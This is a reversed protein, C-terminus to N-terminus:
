QARWADLYMTSIARKGTEYTIIHSHSWSSPGRNYGLDLESTTGATWVGDRIGAQHTHGTNVRRGIRGIGGPTGRSGNPGLHGHIGCEIGERGDSSCIIFSEDERLFVVEEPCGLEQLAYEVLHFREDKEYIGEYVRSQCKLFFRANVPDRRYDAERLWRGMANDHNSDVVIMKCGPRRAGKILAVVDQLEEEVSEYGEVHKEFAIHPNGTDHHNRSRFDVLDHMFQYKPRLVDLIGDKGWAALAVKPDVRAGHVDGWNIAEVRRGKRIRGGMAILDLDCITGQRDAVLQRVWWRGKVDVEVLLGGYVHHFEAKLGATKQIYNVKTIAGTTYNFKTRELKGSPVSVLALKAHPFIGSSTGTYTDFGSLPRVATPLINMEGCWILGPALQIRRDFIYKDELESPFWPEERSAEWADKNYTFTSVMIMANYHEALARLNAWAPEFLHTNNQASTLIYRKVGVRPPKFVEMKLGTRAGGAIPKEIGAMKRHYIVTARTIGLEKAARTVNGGFLLLAQVVQDRTVKKGYFVM